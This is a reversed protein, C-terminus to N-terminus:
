NVTSLLPRIVLAAATAIVGAAMPASAVDCSPDFTEVNKVVGDLAFKAAASVSSTPLPDTTNALPTTPDPDATSALPTTPDPDATSALPTIPDPDATSLVLGVIAVGVIEVGVILPYMSPFESIPTTPADAVRLMALLVTSVAV